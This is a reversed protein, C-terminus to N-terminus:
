PLHEPTPGIRGTLKKYIARDYLNRETDFELSRSGPEPNYHYSLHIRRNVPDWKPANLMKGYSYRALPAAQTPGGLRFVYLVGKPPMERQIQAVVEPPERFGSTETWPWRMAAQYGDEPAEYPSTFYSQEPLIQAVTQLGNGSGAIEIVLTEHAVYATRANTHREWEKRDFPKDRELRMILHTVSGSGQPKVWDAAILDFHWPGNPQTEPVPIAGRIAHMPVPHRKKRMILKGTFIRSTGADKKLYMEGYDRGIGLNPHYGEIVARFSLSGSRYQEPRGQFTVFGRDDTVATEPVYIDNAFSRALNSKITVGALPREDQDVLQVTATIPLQGVIFEDTDDEASRLPMAALCTMVLLVNRM